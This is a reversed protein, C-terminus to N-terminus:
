LPTTQTAAFAMLSLFAATRDHPKERLYNSTQLPANLDGEFCGVIQLPKRRLRESSLNIVNSM